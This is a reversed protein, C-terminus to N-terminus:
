LTLLKYTAFILLSLVIGSISFFSISNSSRTHWYALMIMPLQFPLRLIAQNTTINILKQAELSQALYINAPFVLFLLIFLGWAAFYRYRNFLLLVGFYIELFGSLYVFLKHFPLYPPMIHLFYAPDTFHKVGVNIYLSSM